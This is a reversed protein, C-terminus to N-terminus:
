GCLLMSCMLLQVSVGSALV